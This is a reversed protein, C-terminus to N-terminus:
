FSNQFSEDRRKHDKGAMKMKTMMRTGGTCEKRWLRPQRSYDEYYFEPVVEICSRLRPKVSHIPMEAINEFL